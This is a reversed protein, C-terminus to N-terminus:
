YVQKLVKIIKNNFEDDRSDVSHMWKLYHKRKTANVKINDNGNYINPVNIKRDTFYTSTQYAYWMFKGLEKWNAKYNVLKNLTEMPKIFMDKDKNQKLLEMELKSLDIAHISENFTLAIKTLAFRLQKHKFANKYEKYVGNSKLHSKVQNLKQM